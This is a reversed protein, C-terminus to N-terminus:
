KNEENKNTERYEKSKITEKDSNSFNKGKRERDRLRSFIFPNHLFTIEHRLLVLFKIM